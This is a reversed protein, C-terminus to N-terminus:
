KKESAFITIDASQIGTLEQARKLAHRTSLNINEPDFRFFQSEGLVNMLGSKRFIREVEAHAGSVLIACDKARAFTILERLTIAVTADLHHANRMRLIIAKQNPHEVMYRMQELFVDSSAFFLDGEVHVIAIAPREKPKQTDVLAGQEDFAIEKLEPRAAKRLFLVISAAAGIYIATDLPLLVGGGLTVFFVTADSKSTKIMFAINDRNILSVGVMIVLAALAPRPIYGVYQGLLFLGAILMLGSMISSIPTKAGSEFNLVSRTLSGSVAMGSGFACAFNAAGMSLMQQNLDVRDGAKAALTKAISSSELLSLFAVALAANSLEYFDVWSVQPLSLPWGGALIPDLMEVEFGYRGAWATIVSVVLLTIAVTPLGKAYHKLPLYLCLTLLGVLLASWQTTGLGSILNFLSEILTGARPVHLGLVIKIQNIIILFAAATIYGTIVARSVYQVVAAVRLFAGVIMFTGVLLLLFPLAVVAQEPSYNLTLFASLLMVATANTPGLMVFRSSALLPGTISALSSCFIGIQVPLGAILAYAMGQPFDLLAVNVAARADSAAKKPTYNRITELLPFAKLRGQARLHKRDTM